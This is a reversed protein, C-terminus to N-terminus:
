RKSSYYKDILYVLYDKNNFSVRENMFKNLHETNIILDSGKNVLNFNGKTNIVIEFARAIELVPFNIPYAINITVRNIKMDLYRKIIFFADDIDILNRTASIWLDIKKKEIIAQYIYNAITHRNNSQGVVQSLRFIAYNQCSKVLNEMKIKHRIYPTMEKNLISCTSFYIVQTKDDISNISKLLLSEERMFEEQKNEQSNSVGSAFYIRDQCSLNNNKIWNALLGNGIIM